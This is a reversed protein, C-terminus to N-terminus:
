LDYKEEEEQILDWIKEMKELQEDTANRMRDYLVKHRKSAWSQAPEEELISSKPVDFYNAMKQVNGMSPANHGLIWKGVASESVGIAKALEAQTMEHLELLKRINVAMINLQKKVSDSKDM